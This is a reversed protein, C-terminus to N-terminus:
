HKSDLLSALVVYRHNHHVQFSLSLELTFGRLVVVRIQCQDKDKNYSLFIVYRKICLDDDCDM